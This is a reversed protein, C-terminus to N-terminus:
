TLEQAVTYIDGAGMTIFLVDAADKEKLLHLTDKLSPTTTAPTNQENIKEALVESTVNEIPEERAAYIPAVIVEDALSLAEAFEQMFDRTRSYLHPHFAVVIKKDPFKERVAELTKAVATPHHAYDDYVLAGKKTKGKYEFRRWAGKFNQLSTDMKEESFSPLDAAFVAAATKAARANMENFTGLLNLKPTSVSSYDVVMCPAEHALEQLVPDELTTILVGNKPLAKIAKRFTNKLADFDKFYDTHDWELNTVVLINNSLKLLHDQYECAEVVFPADEKGAVFNGGFEPIVSGVVVTPHVGSDILIRALLATTTTKGHTGAVAITFREKTIDGLAEFYSYQPTAHTRAYAREKDKEPVADSYIVVDTETPIRSDNQAIHVEIGKKVLLETTPSSVRDSGNISIGREQYLQALASMGIGGIGIFYATKQTKSQM